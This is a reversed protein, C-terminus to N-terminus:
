PAHCNLFIELLVFTQNIREWRVLLCSVFRQYIKNINDPVEEAKKRRYEEVEKKVEETENKFKEKIFNNMFTFRTEKMKTDPNNKKWEKTREAWQENITSKWKTEYTMSHYAQWAQQVRKKKMKLLGFTPTAERSDDLKQAATLRKNNRYWTKLRQQM